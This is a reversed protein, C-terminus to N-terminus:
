SKTVGCNERCLEDIEPSYNYNYYDGESEELNPIMPSLDQTDENCTSPHPKQHIRIVDLINM